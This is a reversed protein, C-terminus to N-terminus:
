KSKGRVKDIAEYLTKRQESPSLGTRDGLSRNVENVQDKSLGYMPDINTIVQKAKRKAKGFASTLANITSGIIKEM